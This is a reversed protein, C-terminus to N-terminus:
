GAQGGIPVVQVHQAEQLEPLKTLYRQVTSRQIKIRKTSLWVVLDAYSAGRQRLAILDARHPALRSGGWTRRKRRSERLQRIKQLTADADIM